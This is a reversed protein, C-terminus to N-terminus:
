RRVAAAAVLGADLEDGLHLQERMQGIDAVGTRQDNMRSRGRMTLKGVRLLDLGAGARVDDPERDADLVLVVDDGVEVLRQRISGRTMGPRALPALGSDM